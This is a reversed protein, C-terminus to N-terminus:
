QDKRKPKKSLKEELEKMKDELIIPLDDYRPPYPIYDDEVPEEGLDLKRMWPSKKEEIQQVALQQVIHISILLNVTDVCSNKTLGRRAM